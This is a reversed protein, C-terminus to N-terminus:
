TLSEPLRERDRSQRTNRLLYGVVKSPRRGDNRECCTFEAAECTLLLECRTKKRERASFEGRLIKREEFM